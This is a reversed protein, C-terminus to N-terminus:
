DLLSLLDQHHPSVGGAIQKDVTHSVADDRFDILLAEESSPLAAINRCQDSCTGHPSSPVEAAEVASTAHPHERRPASPENLSPENSSQPSSATRKYKQGSLRQPKLPISPRKARDKPLVLPKMRSVDKTKGTEIVSKQDKPILPKIRSIDEIERTDVTPREEETSKRHLEPFKSQSDGAKSKGKDKYAGSASGQSSPEASSVRREKALGSWTESGYRPVPPASISAFIPAQNEIVTVTSETSSKTVKSLVRSAEVSSGQSRAIAKAIQPKLEKTQRLSLDAQKQVCAEIVADLDHPHKLLLKEIIASEVLPFLENLTDAQPMRTTSITSSTGADLIQDLIEAVREDVRQDIQAQSDVPASDKDPMLHQQGGKASASKRDSHLDAAHNRPVSTYHGRDASGRELSPNRQHNAEHSHSESEKIYVRDGTQGNTPGVNDESTVASYSTRETYVSDLEHYVPDGQLENVHLQPKPSYTPTSSPRPYLPMQPALSMGKSSYAPSLPPTFPSLASRSSSDLHCSSGGADLNSSMYGLSDRSQHSYGRLEPSLTVASSPTTARSSISGPYYSKRQFNLFKANKARTHTSDGSLKLKSKVSKTFGRMGGEIGEDPDDHFITQTPDSLGLSQNIQHVVGFFTLATNSLESRLSTTSNTFPLPSKPDFKADSYMSVVQPSMPPLASPPYLFSTPNTSDSGHNSAIFLLSKTSRKTQVSWVSQGTVPFVGCYAALKPESIRSSSSSGKADRLKRQWELIQWGQSNLKECLRQINQASRRVVERSFADDISEVNRSEIFCLSLVTYWFCCEPNDDLLSTNLGWRDLTRFLLSLLNKDRFHSITDYALRFLIGTFGRVVLTSSLYCDKLFGRRGGSTMYDHSISDKVTRLQRLVEGFSVCSTISGQEVVNLGIFNSSFFCERGEAGSAQRKKKTLMFPAMHQSSFLIGERQISPPVAYMWGMRGQRTLASILNDLAQEATHASNYPVTELDLIGCLAYYKDCPVTAELDEALQLITAEMECNESYFQRLYSCQKCWVWFDTLWPMEPHRSHLFAAIYGVTELEIYAVSSSDGWSLVYRESLLIEQFIWARKRWDGDWLALLTQLCLLELEESIPATLTICNPAFLCRHHSAGGASRAQLPGELFMCKTIRYLEYLGTLDLDRLLLITCCADFFVQNMRPVWFAKDVPSTQDICKCDIWCKFTDQQVASSARGNVVSTADATATINTTTLQLLRNRIQDWSPLIDAPHDKWDGWVYSIAFFSRDRKALSLKSATGPEVIRHYEENVPDIVAFASRSSGIAAKPISMM